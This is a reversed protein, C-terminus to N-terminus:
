LSLHVPVLVGSGSRSGFVLVSGAPCSGSVGVRSLTWLGSGVGSEPNGVGRFTWKSSPVLLSVRSLIMSSSSSVTRIMGLGGVRGGEVSSSIDSLLPAFTPFKEPSESPSSALTKRMSILAAM